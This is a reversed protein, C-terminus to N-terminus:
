EADNSILTAGGAAWPPTRLRLKVQVLVPERGLGVIMEESEYGPARVVVKHSGIQMRWSAPAEESFWDDVVVTAGIPDSVVRLEGRPAMPGWFGYGVLGAVLLIVPGFSAFARCAKRDPPGEDWGRRDFDLLM